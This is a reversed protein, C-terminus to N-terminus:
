RPNHCQLGGSGRTDTGAAARVNMAGVRKGGAPAGRSGRAGQHPHGPGVHWGRRSGEAGRRQEGRRREEEEGRRREEGRRQEEERSREEGRSGEAGRKEEERKEPEWVLM